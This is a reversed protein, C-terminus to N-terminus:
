ARQRAKIRDLERYRAWTRQAAAPSDDTFTHRLQAEPTPKLGMTISSDTPNYWVHFRM